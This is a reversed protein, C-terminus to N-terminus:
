SPIYSVIIRIMFSAVTIKSNVPTDKKDGKIFLKMMEGGERKNDMLFRRFHARFDSVSPPTSLTLRSGRKHPSPVAGHICPGKM